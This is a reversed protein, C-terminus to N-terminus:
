VSSVLTSRRLLSGSSAVVIEVSNTLCLDFDIVLINIFTYSLPDKSRGKLALKLSGPV